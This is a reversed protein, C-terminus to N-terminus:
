RRTRASRMSSIRSIPAIQRASRACDPLRRAAHHRAAPVLRRDRDIRRALRDGRAGAGAREAHPAARRRQQQGRARGRRRDAAQALGRCPRRARRPPRKRSRIRADISRADRRRGGRGGRGAIPARGLNTHLVTGTLNFVPRQSPQMLRALAAGSAAVIAEVSAPKGASRREALADRIAETVLSRGHREILGAAGPARLVRDVAPLAARKDRVPARM